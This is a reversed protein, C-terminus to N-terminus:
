GWGCGEVGEGEGGKVEVGPMGEKGRWWYVGMGSVGLGGLRVMELDCWILGREGVRVEGYM